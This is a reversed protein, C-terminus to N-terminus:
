KYFSHSNYRFLYTKSGWVESESKQFYLAEQSYDEGNLVRMAAEKTISTPEVVLYAGSSVPDFQGPSEIVEAISNPFKESAVRNMVVNGVLIRGKLDEGRAECEIIRCLADFDEVSVPLGDDLSVSSEEEVVNVEGTNEVQNLAQEHAGGLVSSYKQDIVVEISNEKANVVNGNLVLFREVPNIFFSACLLIAGGIVSICWLHTDFSLVKLFNVLRRIKNNM